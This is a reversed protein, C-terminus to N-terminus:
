AGGTPKSTRADSSPPILEKPYGADSPMWYDLVAHVVYRRAASYKPHCTTMTLYRGNPATGPHNPVPAIVRIATPRVIQTGTVRYIYWTNETRIVIADGVEIQEIRSFPKGYTTRHGAVSFNGWGGPMATHAYHGIGLPDLVGRKDTGESIPRVYKYGWRPVYMTAFTTAHKPEKLVPPEDRREVSAIPATVTGAGVTIEPVPEANAWDLNEVIQAQAHNAGIDTWWLEWAVFLGIVVGLTILSEGTVGLVRDVIRRGRRSKM